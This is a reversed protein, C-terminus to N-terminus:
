SCCGSWKGSRQGDSSTRRWRGETRVRTSYGTWDLLPVVERWRPSWCLRSVRRPDYVESSPGAAVADGSPRPAVRHASPTRTHADTRRLCRVEERPKPSAKEPRSAGPPLQPDPRAFEIRTAAAAKPSGFVDPPVSLDLWWGSLDMQHRLRAPDNRYVARVRRPAKPELQPETAVAPAPPAKKGRKASPAGSQAGAAVAIALVGVALLASRRGSRTIM